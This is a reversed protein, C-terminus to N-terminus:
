ENNESHLTLISEKIQLVKKQYKKKRRKEILERKRSQTQLSAQDSKLVGFLIEVKKNQGKRKDVREGTQSYM